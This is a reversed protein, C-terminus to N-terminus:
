ALATTATAVHGDTRRDTRRRTETLLKTCSHLLPCSRFHSLADRPGEAISRSQWGAVSCSIYKAHWTQICLFKNWRRGGRINSNSSRIQEGGATREYAERVRRIASHNQWSEGSTALLRSCDWDSDQENFIEVRSGSRSIRVTDKRQGM